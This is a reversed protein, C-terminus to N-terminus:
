GNRDGKLALQWASGDGPAENTARLAIWLGSKETVVDGQRYELARQHVGCYRLGRERVDAAQEELAAVRKALLEHALATHAGLVGIARLLGARLGKTFAAPSKNAKSEDAIADALDSALLSTDFSKM